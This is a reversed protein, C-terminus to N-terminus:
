CTAMESADVENKGKSTGTWGPQKYGQHEGQGM